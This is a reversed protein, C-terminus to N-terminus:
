DGDTSDNREGLVRLKLSLATDNGADIENMKFYYSFM